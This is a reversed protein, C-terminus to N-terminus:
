SSEPARQQKTGFPWVKKYSVRPVSTVDPAEFISMQDISNSSTDTIVEDLTETTSKSIVKFELQNDDEDIEESFIDRYCNEPLATAISFIGKM